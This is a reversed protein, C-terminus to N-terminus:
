CFSCLWLCVVAPLCGRKGLRPLRDVGNVYLYVVFSYLHLM